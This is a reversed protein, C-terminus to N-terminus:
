RRIFVKIEAIEAAPVYTIETGFGDHFIEREKWDESGAEAQDTVFLSVSGDAGLLCPGAEFAMFRSLDSCMLRRGDRLRVVLTSPAFRPKMRLSDWASSHRDSASVRSFRLLKFILDEGWRRWAAAALLSIAVALASSKLESAMPGYSLVAKAILAYVLSLFITDITRHNGDKGTYAVRYGLYGAVLITLTSLPLALINQIEPM